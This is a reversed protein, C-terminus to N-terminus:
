HQPPNMLPPHLFLMCGSGQYTSIYNTHILDDLTKRLAKSPLYINQESIVRGRKGKLYETYM